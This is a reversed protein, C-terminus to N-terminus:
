SDPIPQNAAPYSVHVSNLLEQKLENLRNEFPRDLRSIKEQWETKALINVRSIATGSIRMQHLLEKGVKDIEEREKEDAEDYEQALEKLKNITETTKGRTIHSIGQSIKDLMLSNRLDIGEVLREIVARGMLEKDADDQKNLETELRKADGKELYKEALSKGLQNCRDERHKNREEPSLEGLKGAKEQAIEWASRIDGM